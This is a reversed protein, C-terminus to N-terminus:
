AITRVVISVDKTVLRIEIVLILKVHSERYMCCPEQRLDASKTSLNVIKFNGQLLSDFEMLESHNLMVFM